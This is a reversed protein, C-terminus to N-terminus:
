GDGASGLRSLFEEVRNFMIETSTSDYDELGPDAFLHGTGRYTYAEFTAGSGAVAIRLEEEEDPDVWPDGEARHVQVEVGPPWSNLGLAAVPLAGHMLVAGRAGPRTAALLETPRVGLSFGILVLEKPLHVVAQQARRVIEAMGLSDRKRLGSELDSFVEGDYYDPCHTSFGSERLREAWDLISPRLGLASHFIVVQPKTSSPSPREQMTYIDERLSGM